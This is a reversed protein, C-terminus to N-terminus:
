IHFITNKVMGRQVDCGWYFSVLESHGLHTLKPIILKIKLITSSDYTKDKYSINEINHM